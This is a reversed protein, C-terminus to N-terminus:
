PKGHCSSCSCHPKGAADGAADPCHTGCDPTTGGALPHLADEPNLWLPSTTRM